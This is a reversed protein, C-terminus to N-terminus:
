RLERQLQGVMTAHARLRPLADNALSRANTDSSNGAAGEYLAISKAHGAAMHDLFARDFAAGDMAKVANAATADAPAPAADTIGSASRLQANLADPM